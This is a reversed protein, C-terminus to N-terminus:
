INEGWQASPYGFAAIRAGSSRGLSDTHSFYNKAAMDASMWQSANELTVSIQLPGAGNQSRYTKMLTLVNAEESDITPLGGNPNPNPNPSPNPAPSPPPAVVASNYGPEYTWFPVGSDNYVCSVGAVNANTSLLADRHFTDQWGAQVIWVPDTNMYALNESVINYGLTAATTDYGTHPNFGTSGPTHTAMYALFQTARIEADKMGTTDMTLAPVSNQARYANIQTFLSNIMSDGCWSEGAPLTIQHNIAGSASGVPSLAVVAVAIVCRVRFSNTM